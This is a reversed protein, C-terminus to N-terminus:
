GPYEYWAVRLEMGPQTTNMTAPHLCSVNEPHRDGGASAQTSAFLWDTRHVGLKKIERGESPPVPHPDAWLGNKAARAGDRVSGAAYGGPAFRRYWWCWGQKFLEQYLNMGDPLVMDGPILKYKDHGHTQVTVDKGFALASAAEKAKQGFAHGKEPCDIGNLRIRDARLGNLFELTDGHSSASLFHPKWVQFDLSVARAM